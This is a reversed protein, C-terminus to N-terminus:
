NFHSVHNMPDTRGNYVTFTPQTFRRPLKRGEIKRTFLSKSIQNLARSMADNSLGKRSPSKSRRKSHRDEFYSFSESPSTRSRPRSSGGKDDDSSPNSNSPTRRRQKYRLRRHLRDIELQMSRTNEKYSTYSKGQSQSRSTHTTHVSVEHDKRRELNLFQDQRQSGIYEEQDQGSGVM